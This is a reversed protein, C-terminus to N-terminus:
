LGSMAQKLVTVNHRFLELFTAAPGDAASLADTYLTGGLVAGSEKALQQVLRPNSKNELFIARIKERRIQRILEAVQGASPEAETSVGVPALFIVGYARSFYGFAGHSSVVTRREAPITDLSARVWRDLDLLQQRYHDANRQFLAAQDPAARALGDAINTVYVLVNRLDHWAHPDAEQGSAGPEAQGLLALAQIGDSATVVSGKFYSAKVLREIWGEFGLGNIVFLDADRLGIADAPTPEYVHADGDAGVLSKVTVAEGGVQRVLDALISFSCVVTLPPTGRATTPMWVVLLIGMFGLWWGKVARHM